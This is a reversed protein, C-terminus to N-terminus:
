ALLVIDRLGAALHIADQMVQPTADADQPFQADCRNNQGGVMTLLPRLDKIDDEPVTLYTQVQLGTYMPVQAQSNPSRLFSM